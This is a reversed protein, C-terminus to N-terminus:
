SAGSTVWRSRRRCPRRRWRSSPRPSGTSGASSLVPQVKRVKGIKVGNFQVNSGAAIGQVNVFRVNFEGEAASFDGVYVTFWLVLGLGLFFVLGVKAEVPM